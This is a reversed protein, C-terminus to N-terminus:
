SALLGFAYYCESNQDFVRRTKDSVMYIYIDSQYRYLYTNLDQPHWANTHIQLSFRHCFVWLVCLLMDAIFLGWCKQRQVSVVFLDRRSFFINRPQTINNSFHVDLFRPKTAPRVSLWWFVKTTLLQDGDLLGNCQSQCSNKLGSPRGSHNLLLLFLTKPSNEHISSTNWPQLM